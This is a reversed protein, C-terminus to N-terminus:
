ITSLDKLLLERDETKTVQNALQKAKAFYDAAAGANGALKEARALAEYAYGLYFPPQGQSYNLCIKGYHRAESPNNLVAQIHSAQWYGVSLRIRECDARQSWHYISAHCLAVMKQDEEPTRDKKDILEWAQNFCHAAFYRHAAAVDFEPQRNM